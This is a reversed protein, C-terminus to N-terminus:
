AKKGGFYYSFGLSITTLYFDAGFRSTKENINEDDSKSKGSAYYISGLMSEVSFKNNIFYIIGPNLATFTGTNKTFGKITIHNGNLDMSTSTTNMDGWSYRTNLQLFFGLKSSVITHNYRAFVGCGKEIYKSTYESFYNMNADSRATLESSSVSGSIGVAFNNSLFYGFNIGGASNTNLHLYEGKSNNGFDRKNLSHYDAYQISGNIMFRNKHEQSYSYIGIVFLVATLYKKM